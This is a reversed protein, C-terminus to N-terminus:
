QPKYVLLCLQPAECQLIAVYKQHQYRFKMLNQATMSPHVAVDWVEPHSRMTLTWKTYPWCRLLHWSLAFFLLQNTTQFMQIITEYIPLLWGLQSEYKESPNFGSVLYFLQFPDVNTEGWTPCAEYQSGYTKRWYILYQFPQSFIVLIEPEGRNVEQIQYVYMYSHFITWKSGNLEIIQKNLMMNNKTILIIPLWLNCHFIREWLKPKLKPFDDCQISKWTIEM